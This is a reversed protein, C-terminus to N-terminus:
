SDSYWMQSNHAVQWLNGAGAPTSAFQPNYLVTFPLWSQNPFNFDAMPYTAPDGLAPTNAGKDYHVKRMIDWKCSMNIPALSGRTTAVDSVGQVPLESNKDTKLKRYGLFKIHRERKEPFQLTDKRDNYYEKVYHRIHNFIDTYTVNEVPTPTLSTANLPV